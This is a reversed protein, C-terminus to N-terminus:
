RASAAKDLEIRRVWGFPDATEGYQLALLSDYLKQTIPGVARNGVVYEHGKFKLMGVPSISAATGSGFVETVKGAVIGDLVEKISVEREEVPWGFHRGLTLVSDRTVGHLISGNLRPTVLTKGFVFFINMAGVEEVFEHKSGDLWLVQACGQERAMRGGYLSVAYNGGTKAEGMGGKAARTLEDSVFLNIPNFGETYYPGVPSLIIMFLYESAARVGLITDNAVMFPRIYLASGRHKPIWRHELKVMAEVAELFDAEPLTPMCLRSASRNFRQANKEARFLLIEGKPGHFAKLGEFIEQGYHLVSSAPEMPIQGYKSIRADHWGRGESFPMVLMRDTFTRCFGLRAPDTFLPKLDSDKLQDITIKM